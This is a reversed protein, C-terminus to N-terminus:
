DREHLRLVKGDSNEPASEPTTEIVPTRDEDKPASASNPRTPPQYDEENAVFGVMVLPGFEIALTALVSLLLAIHLPSIHADLIENMMHATSVLHPNQAARDNAIDELSINTMASDRQQQLTEIKTESALRLAEMEESEQTRLTVLQAQQEEKNIGIQRMIEDYAPGRFEESGKYKREKEAIRRAELQKLKSLYFTQVRQRENDYRRVVDEKATHIRQQQADIRKAFTQEVEYVRERHVKALNPADTYYSFVIVSSLLSLCIFIIKTFFATSRTVAKGRALVWALALKSANFTAATFDSLLVGFIAVSPMFSLYATKEFVFSVCVLCIAIAIFTASLLSKM